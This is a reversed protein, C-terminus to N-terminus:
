VSIRALASSLAAHDLTEYDARSALPFAGAVESWAFGVSWSEPPIEGQRARPIILVGSSSYVLNYVQDRGHLEELYRWAAERNEFRHRALPYNGAFGTQAPLPRERAFTQFHLHNVSAYAGFSNYSLGFGPIAAGAERAVEWAWGHLDPTLFQPREALPEPVLLGHMPAFPFKNYLLRAPKGRLEGEWFIEKALFPKNFHFGKADFPRMLGEVRNDSMRAPRLARIPNFQAEWTPAAQDSSAVLRELVPSLHEFGIALLKLFVMLDDDPEALRIGERLASAIRDQLLQHRLALPGRLRDWLALDQAANALVLIYVGLGEHRALMDALGASFRRELDSHSVFPSVIM